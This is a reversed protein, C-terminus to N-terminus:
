RPFLSTQVIDKDYRHYIKNLQGVVASVTIAIMLFWMIWISCCIVKYRGIFADTLWGAVATTIGFPILWVQYVPHDVSTALFYFISIVLYSIALVLVAGKSKVRRIQYRKVNCCTSLKDKKSFVQNNFSALSISKSSSSSNIKKETM